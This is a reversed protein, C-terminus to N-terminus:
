NRVDEKKETNNENNSKSLVEYAHLKLKGNNNSTIYVDKSNKKLGVKM